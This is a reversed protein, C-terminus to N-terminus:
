TGRFHALVARAIDEESVHKPTLTPALVRHRRAAESDIMLPLYADLDIRSPKTGRESRRREARHVAALKRRAAMARSPGFGSKAPRLKIVMSPLM